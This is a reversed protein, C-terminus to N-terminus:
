MNHLLHPVYFDLEDRTNQLKPSKIQGKFNFLIMVAHRRRNYFGYHGGVGGGGGVGGETVIGLFIDIIEHGEILEEGQSQFNRRGKKEKGGSGEKSGEVSQM